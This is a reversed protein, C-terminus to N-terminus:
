GALGNLQNNRFILIRLSYLYISNILFIIIALTSIKVDIYNKYNILDFLYIGSFLLFWVFKFLWLFTLGPKRAFFSFALMLIYALTGMIM